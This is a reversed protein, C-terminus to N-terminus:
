SLVIPLAMLLSDSCCTYHNLMGELDDRKVMTVPNFLFVTGGDGCIQPFADSLM